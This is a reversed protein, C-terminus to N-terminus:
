HVQLSASKAGAEHTLLAYLKIFGLNHAVRRLGDLQHAHAVQQRSGGLM